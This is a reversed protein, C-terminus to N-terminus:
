SDVERVAAHYLQISTTPLWHASLFCIHPIVNPVWLRDDYVVHHRILVVLTNVSSPDSTHSVLQTLKKACCGEVKQVIYLFVVDDGDDLLLSHPRNESGMKIFLPWSRLIHAKCVHVSYLSDRRLQAVRRAVCAYVINVFLWGSNLQLGSKNQVYISGDTTVYADM